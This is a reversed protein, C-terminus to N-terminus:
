IWSWANRSRNKHTNSRLVATLPGPVQDNNIHHENGTNTDTSLPPSSTSAENGKVTETRRSYTQQSLDEKFKQVTVLEVSTTQSPDCEVHRGYVEDQRAYRRFKKKTSYWQYLTAFLTAVLIAMIIGSIGLIYWVLSDDHVPMQDTPITSVDRTMYTITVTDLFYTTQVTSTGITESTGEKVCEIDPDCTYDCQTQKPSPGHYENSCDFPNGGVYVKTKKICNLFSINKLKHCTLDLAQLSINDNAIDQLNNRSLNLFRLLTPTKAKFISIHNYSLNLSELKILNSFVERSINSINNNSLDLDTLKTMGLFAGDQIETIENFSLNLYQLERNEEVLHNRLDKIKNLSLDLFKVAIQLNLDPFSSIKNQPLYLSLFDGSEIHKWCDEQLSANSFSTMNLNSCLIVSVNCQCSIVFDMYSLNLSVALLMSNLYIFANRLKEM